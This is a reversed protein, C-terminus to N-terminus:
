LNQHVLVVDLQDARRILIDLLHHALPVLVFNIRNIKIRELGNGFPVIKEECDIFIDCELLMMAVHKDQRRWFGMRAPM